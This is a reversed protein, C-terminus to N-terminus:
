VIEDKFYQFLKLDFNNYKRITEQDKNSIERKNNTKFNKIYDIKKNTKLKKILKNSDEAFNDFDVVFYFNRLNDISILYLNDDIEKKINGNIFKCMGNRCSWSKRIFFDLGVNAHNHYPLRRDKKQMLYYSYVRQIPDRM